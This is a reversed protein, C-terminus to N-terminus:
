ELVPNLTAKDLRSMGMKNFTYTGLESRTIVEQIPNRMGRDCIGPLCTTVWNLINRKRERRM